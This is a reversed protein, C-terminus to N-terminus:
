PFDIGLRFFREGARKEKETMLREAPIIEDLLLHLVDRQVEPSADQIQNLQPVQGELQKLLADYLARAEASVKRAPPEDPNRKFSSLRKASPTWPTRTNSREISRVGSTLNTATSPANQTRPAPGIWFVRAVPKSELGVNIFQQSDRTVHRLRRRPKLLMMRLRGRVLTLYKAQGKELLLAV